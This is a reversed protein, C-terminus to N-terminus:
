LLQYIRLNDIEQHSQTSRFGFYGNELLEPDRYYFYCEDDVFFSTVNDKVIIKIRYEKNPQLLHQSDLHEKLLIREGNGKYKRFRTTTNSNGGMGVYYLRLSDYEEFKGHRTFLDNNKPDSAMWFQNLDSLRDHDGGKVIVKRTYEIQINGRLEKNLWVTVGGGTNLRLREEHITVTSGPIPEIESVWLQTDLGTNFDDSFLLVKKVNSLSKKEQEESLSQGCAIHVVFCTLLLGYIPLCFKERRKPRYGSM